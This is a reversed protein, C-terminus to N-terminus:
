RMTSRAATQVGVPGVGRYDLGAAGHPAFAPYLSGEEVRLADRSSQQIRRAIGYGHMPGGALTNLILMDLTGQVVENCKSFDSM